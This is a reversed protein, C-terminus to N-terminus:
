NPQCIVDAIECFGKGNKYNSIFKPLHKMISKFDTINSVGFSIPFFEFMPEDNPSDGAYACVQQAQIKDISYLDNLLQLSTSLKTHQGFWGNVHISSVKATAKHNQFVQVIKQIDSDPLKSIDENFDIALDTIRCFQDSSIQAGPIQILIDQKILDLKKQNECRTKEDQSFWRHM